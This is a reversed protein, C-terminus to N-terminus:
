KYTLSGNPEPIDDISIANIKCFHEFFERAFAESETGKKITVIDRLIQAAEIDHLWRYLGQGWRQKESSNRNSYYKWFKMSKAEQSTLSLKYKSKAAVYSFEGDLHMDDILFVGFIFRDSEDTDPERTTLVALSNTADKSLQAYPYVKWERFIQSEYCVYGEYSCQSDLEERDIFGNYYQNCPSQEDCCWQYQRKEINYRIVEDSCAGMYGFYEKCQGGDCYNCKIALNTKNESANIKSHHQKKIQNNDDAAQYEIKRQKESKKVLIDRKKQELLEVLQKQIDDDEMTLHYEFADPFIFQKIKGSFNVTIQSDTQEVIVGNKFFNHIVKKSRLEM